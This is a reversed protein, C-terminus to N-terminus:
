QTYVLEYDLLMINRAMNASTELSPKRPKLQSREIETSEDISYAEKAGM